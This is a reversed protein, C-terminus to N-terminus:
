RRNQEIFSFPTGSAREYQTTIAWDGPKPIKNLFRDYEISGFAFHDAYKYPYRKNDITRKLKEIMNAVRLKKTTTFRVIPRRFIKRDIADLYCEFKREIVELSESGTDFEELVQFGALSYFPWDPRKDIDPMPLLEIPLNHRRAGLETSAAVLCAGLEHSLSRPEV